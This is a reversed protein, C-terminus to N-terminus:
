RTFVWKRYVSLFISYPTIFLGILLDALTLSYVFTKNFNSFAETWAAVVMITCNTLVIMITVFITVFTQLTFDPQDDLHDERVTDNKRWNRHQTKPKATVNGRMADKPLEAATALSSSITTTSPESASVKVNVSVVAYLALLLAVMLPWAM